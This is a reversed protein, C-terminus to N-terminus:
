DPLPAPKEPRKPPPLESASKLAGEPEMNKLFSVVPRATEKKAVDMKSVYKAVRWRTNVTVCGDDMGKLGSAAAGMSGPAGAAPCGAASFFGAAAAVAFGSSLLVGAAAFGM